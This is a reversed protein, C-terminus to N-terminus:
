YAVMLTSTPFGRRDGSSLKCTYMQFNAVWCHHPVGCYHIISLDVSNHLQGGCYQLSHMGCPTTGGFNDQDNPRKRNCTLTTYILSNAFQIAGPGSHWNKSLEMQGAM